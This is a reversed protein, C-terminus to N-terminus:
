NTKARTFNMVPVELPTEETATNEAPAMGAYNPALRNREPTEPSALRAINKLEGLPRNNLDEKTFPNNKNAMIADVLRAKEDNYVSLSNNLVEQMERPAAAIYDQILVVKPTAKGEGEGNQNEVKSAEANKAAKKKAAAEKDAEEDEKKKPPFTANHILQLQSESMAMLVTRDTEAWGANATIIASVTKEKNMNEKQNTSLRQNGVYAGDATQYETVRQVEVPTEDSLKVVEGDMMYSLRWLKGDYDYIFFGDYVDCVYAYKYPVSNSPYKDLLASHLASTINSFSMKNEVLHNGMLENGRKVMVPDKAKEGKKVMALGQAVIAERNQQNRLFGAGDSISCAGIQDPLLALHDPRYNRAIGTYEEEKWVGSEDDVDIFVGTSLEMVEKNEVAEMIREDVKNALTKEIWAESKLKGSEYRTNLMVGVKRSNLIHPDCASVSEGNMSPHYVVIPKHNWVAPTKSLENKPYYIPGMSGSHVGETLIVMPVVIHERGELTDFRCGKPLLNCILRAYKSM